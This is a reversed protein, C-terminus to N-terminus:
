LDVIDETLEMQELLFYPWWVLSTVLIPPYNGRGEGDGVVSELWMALLGVLDVEWCSFFLCRV